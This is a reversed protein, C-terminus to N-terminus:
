RYHEMVSKIVQWLVHLGEMLGGFGALYIAWRILPHEAFLKKLAQLDEVSLKTPRAPHFGKSQKEQQGKNEDSM